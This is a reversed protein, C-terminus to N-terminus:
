DPALPAIWAYGTPPGGSAPGRTLVLKLAAEGPATWAQAACLALDRFAAADFPIELAAASRAMRALHADLKAVHSRGDADTVLRCGEFCGDGRTLGADDARVIPEAPDVVGRGLVAVVAPAAGSTAEEGIM